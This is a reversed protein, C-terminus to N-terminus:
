YKSQSQVVAVRQHNQNPADVVPSAEVAHAAHVAPHVAVVLARAAEAVAQAAQHVLDEM